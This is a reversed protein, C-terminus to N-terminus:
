KCKKPVNLYSCPTYVGEAKELPLMIYSKELLDNGCFIDILDKLFNDKKGGLYYSLIFYDTGNEKYQLSATIDTIYWKGNM